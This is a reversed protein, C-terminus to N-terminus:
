DFLLYFQLLWAVDVNKQRRVETKQIRQSMHKTIFGRRFAVWFRTM